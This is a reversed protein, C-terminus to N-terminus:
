LGVEPQLGYLSFILRSLEPRVADPVAPQLGDLVGPIVQILEDRGARGPARASDATAHAARWEVLAAEVRLRLQHPSRVGAALQAKVAAVSLGNPEDGVAALEEASPKYPPALPVHRLVALCGFAGAATQDAWMLAVDTGGAPNTWAGSGLGCAGTVAPGLAQDRAIWGEPSGGADLNVGVLTRAALAQDGAVLVTLLLEPRPNFTTQAIAAGLGAARVPLAGCPDAVERWPSWSAPLGRGDAALGVAYRLTPGSPSPLLAALVLDPRADGDVDGATLALDLPAGPLDIPLAEPRGWAIAGDGDPERGILLHLPLVAGGARREALVAAVLPVSVTGGAPAAMWALGLGAAPLPLTAVRCAGAGDIGGSAHLGSLLRYGLLREDPLWGVLLDHGAAAPRLTADLFAIREALPQEPRPPASTGPTYVPWARADAVAVPSGGLPMVPPPQSAPQPVPLVAGPTLTGGARGTAAGARAASAQMRSAAVGGVAGGWSAGNASPLSATSGAGTTVVESAPTVPKSQGFFDQEPTPANPDAALRVVPLEEGGIRVTERVAEQAFSVGGVASLAAVLLKLHPGTGTM